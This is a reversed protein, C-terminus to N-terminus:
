VGQKFDREFHKETYRKKNQVAKYIKEELGTNSFLWHVAAPTERKQSQLRAISQWYSVSAHHINFMILCDAARLDIGERSSVIQGAYITRQNTSNFEEPSQAIKMGCSEAFRSILDYESKFVYFIAIKQGTFRSFLYRAKSSDIVKYEGNDDIITGSAIQHCKQLLKGGTDATVTNENTPFCVRENRLTKFLKITDTSMEVTHVQEKIEQSFGAEKRTMTIFLEQLILQLEPRTKSYDNIEQTANIKIKGPIGYQKFWQYFNKFQRFPSFDSLQLQHFIQSYSEPTPTGSLFVVPVGRTLRKTEIWRLSPKPYSSFSHAEDIIVLDYEPLLKPAQEFNTVTLNYNYGGEQYDAQISSIAKKKTLFLVKADSGKHHRAAISLATHTKGCRPEFALYPIKGSRLLEVAKNVGAKQYDRLQIM